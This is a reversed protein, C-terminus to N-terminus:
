EQRQEWHIVLPMPSRENSEISNEVCLFLTPLDSKVFDGMGHLIRSSYRDSVILTRYNEISLKRHKCAADLYTIIRSTKGSTKIVVDPFPCAGSTEFNIDPYGSTQEKSAM